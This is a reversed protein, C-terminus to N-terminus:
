SVSAKTIFPWITALESEYECHRNIIEHGNIQFNQSIQLKRMTKTQDQQRLGKFDPVVTKQKVSM